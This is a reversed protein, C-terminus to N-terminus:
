SSLSKGCAYWMNKTRSIYIYLHVFTYVYITRIFGHSQSTKLISSHRSAQTYRELKYDKNNLNYFVRLHRLNLFQLNKEANFIWQPKWTWQLYKKNIFNKYTCVYKNHKINTKDCNLSFSFLILNEM